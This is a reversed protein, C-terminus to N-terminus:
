NPTGSPQELFELLASAEKERGRRRYFDALLLYHEEAIKFEPQLALLALLADELYDSVVSAAAESQMQSLRGILFHVSFILYGELSEILNAADTSPLDNLRADAPLEALFRTMTVDPLLHTSLLAQLATKAAVIEKHGPTPM